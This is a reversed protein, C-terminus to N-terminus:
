LPFSCYRVIELELYDMSAESDIRALVANELPTIFGMSLVDARTDPRAAKDYFYRILGPRSNGWEYAVSESFTM